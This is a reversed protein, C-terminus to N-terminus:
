VLPYSANTAIGCMNDIDTSFYIYGDMGWDTGWSNKIMIFSKNEIVGYGVATVAHDLMTKSCSTSTFIGSKYLQFDYEADIAVSIPGINGIANYLSKMDGYNIEVVRSINAGSNNRNYECNEDVGMYNYSSETDIGHNDIVYHMAKDPWGGECGDCSYNTACDVLNQESLSTLNGTRLAHQGEIAAVASFAWCSGCQGQDKVDTVLGNARWDVSPPNSSNTINYNSIISNNVNIRLNLYIDNFEQRTMDTFNNIGLKYSTLNRNREEIYDLNRDYIHYRRWYESENYHKNYKNLYSNYSDQNEFYGLTLVGLLLLM